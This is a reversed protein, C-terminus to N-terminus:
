GRKQQAARFLYCENRVSFEIGVYLFLEFVTTLCSNGIPRNSLLRCRERCESVCDSMQLTRSMLDRLRSMFERLDADGDNWVTTM